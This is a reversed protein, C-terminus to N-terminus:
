QRRRVGLQATLVAALIATGLFALGSLAGQATGIMGLETFDAGALGAALSLMIGGLFGSACSKVTSPAGHAKEKRRRLRAPLAGLWAGIPIAAFAALTMKGTESLAGSFLSRAAEWGSLPGLWILALGWALALLFGVGAPHVGHKEM